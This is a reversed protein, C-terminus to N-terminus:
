RRRLDLPGPQRPRAMFSSATASRPGAPVTSAVTRGVATGAFPARPPVSPTRLRTSTRPSGTPSTANEPGPAPPSASSCRRSRRGGRSRGGRRCCTPRGRARRRSAADAGVEDVGEGGRARPEREQGPDRGLAHLQALGGRDLLDLAAGGDPGAWERELPDARGDRGVQRVAHVDREVRDGVSSPGPPDRPRRDPRRRPGTRARLPSGVRRARAEEVAVRRKRGIVSAVGRRVRPSPAVGSTRASRRPSAHPRRLRCRFNSPALGVPEKLSRPITIATEFASSAPAREMTQAEVPLVEAEAAAYPAAAPSSTTTTRGAPLIAAPLSRCACAAPARTSATRPLKSAARAATRSSASWSSRGIVRTLETLGYRRSPWFVAAKSTQSSRPPGGSTRAIGTPLAPLM